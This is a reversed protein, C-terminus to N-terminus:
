ELYYSLRYYDSMGDANSVIRQANESAMRAAGTKETDVDYEGAGELLYAPDVGVTFTIYTEEFTITNDSSMNYGTGRAGMTGSSWYLEYPCDAFLSHMITSLDYTFLDRAAVKLLAINDDQWGGNSSDYIDGIGLEGTTYTQQLGLSELPIQVISTDLNGDAIDAAASKVLNYIALNQGDLRRGANIGKLM